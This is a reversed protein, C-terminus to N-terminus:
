LRVVVKGTHRGEGFYQVLDPIKDFSHPGDIICRLKGAELLECIKELGVNAKLALIRLKKGSLLSILPGLLFLQLLRLVKGGVSVYTGGPRLARLYSFVSRNTKCDLIIDYRNGDRTFDQTAYDIVRDFGLDAMMQLKEGTDVGAVTNNHMKAMQLAFTGVGGGGGNILVEQGPRIGAIDELAQLALLSAHPVSAAQEFGMWQPKAFLADQRVVIFEAYSGFCCDSIDGFVADGVKFKTVSPGVADVTGSLEMGPIKNKPRPWGFMLRYIRPRGTIMAWDYDNIATARIRVLVEDGQPTPM